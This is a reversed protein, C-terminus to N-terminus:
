KFVRCPYEAPFGGDTHMTWHVGKGPLPPMGDQGLVQLQAETDDARVKKKLVEALILGNGQIVEVLQKQGQEGDAIRPAAKSGLELLGALDNQKIVSLQPYNRRNDRKWYPNGAIDGAPLTVPDEYSLPDLSGPSPIRFKANIPVGSSREPDVAFFRRIKEWIGRSGLTYKKYIPQVAGSM